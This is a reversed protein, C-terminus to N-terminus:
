TRHAPPALHWPELGWAAVAPEDSRVIERECDASQRPRGASADARAAARCAALVLATVTLWVLPALIVLLRTLM